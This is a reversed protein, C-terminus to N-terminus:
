AMKVMELSIILSIPIMSNTLVFITGLGLIATWFPSHDNPIFDSYKVSKKINWYYKIIAISFCVVVQFLFILLILSNTKKEVNSQKYKSDEANQMIKTDKGTYACVGIVWDTNKLISGRLM